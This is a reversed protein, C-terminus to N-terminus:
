SIRISRNAKGIDIGHINYELGCEELMIHVKHGNPTPWTFLEIM